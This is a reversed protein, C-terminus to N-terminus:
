PMVVSYVAGISLFFGKYQERLKKGHNAFVLWKIKHVDVQGPTSSSEKTVKKLFKKTAGALQEAEELLPGLLEEEIFLRDNRLDDHLRNLLAHVRSAETKLGRAEDPADRIQEILEYVRHAAHLAFGLIGLANAM